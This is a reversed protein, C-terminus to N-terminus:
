ISIKGWSHKAIIDGSHMSVHLFEAEILKNVPNNEIAVIKM